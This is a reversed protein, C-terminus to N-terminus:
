PHYYIFVHLTQHSGISVDEYIIWSFDEKKGFTVVPCVCVSSIIGYLEKKFYPFYDVFFGNQINCATM